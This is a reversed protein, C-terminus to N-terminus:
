SFNCNWCMKYDLQVIFIQIKGSVYTCKSIFKVTELNRMLKMNQSNSSGVVFISYFCRKQGFPHLLTKPYLSIKEALNSWQFISFPTLFVAFKTIIQIHKFPSKTFLLGFQFIQGSISKQSGNMPYQKVDSLYSWVSM